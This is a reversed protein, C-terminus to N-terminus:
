VYGYFQVIHPSKCQELVKIEHLLRAQEREGGGKVVKVAADARRVRARCVSLSISTCMSFPFVVLIPTKQKGGTHQLLELQKAM